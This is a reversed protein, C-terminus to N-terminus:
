VVLLFKCVRAKTFSDYWTFALQIRNTGANIPFHAALHQIEAAYRICLDRSGESRDQLNRMENRHQQIRNLSEQHQKVKQQGDQLNTLFRSLPSLLDVQDTKKQALTKIDLAIM